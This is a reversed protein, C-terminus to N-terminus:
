KNFFSYIAKEKTLGGFNRGLILKIHREKVLSGKPLRTKIEGFFSIPKGRLYFYIGIEERARPFLWLPRLQRSYGL